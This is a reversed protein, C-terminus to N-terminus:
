GLLLNLTFPITHATSGGAVNEISAENPYVSLMRLMPPVDAMLGVLKANLVSFQAM